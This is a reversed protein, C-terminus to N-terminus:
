NSSEAAARAFPPTPVPLALPVRAFPLSRCQCLWHCGAGPVRRGANALAMIQSYM